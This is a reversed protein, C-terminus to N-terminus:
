VMWLGGNVALTQGTIYGAEAGMLFVVAAAVEDPTGVRGVPITATIQERRAELIAASMATEIWGPAVVNATVGRPALERALSRAYGVLAQKCATYVTQGANGALAATSGVLVVRGWRARLLDRGMAKVLLMAALVHLRWAREATDSSLRLAMGDATIGAAHVLGVLPTSGALAEAVATEDWPQALDAIWVDARRGAAEVQARLADLRAEDHSAHLVLDWGAAALRQACAAGIAGSAGTVLARRPSPANM